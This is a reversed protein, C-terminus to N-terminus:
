RYEIITPNNFQKDLVSIIKERMKERRPPFRVMSYKQEYVLSIRHNFDEYRGRALMDSRDPWLDEHTLVIGDENYLDYVDLYYDSFLAWIQDLPKDQHGVSLYSPRRHGREYRTDVPLAIKIKKYWNM